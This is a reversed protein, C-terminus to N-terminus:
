FERGNLFIVFIGRKRKKREKELYMIRMGELLKTGIKVGLIVGMYRCNCGDSWKQIEFRSERWNM